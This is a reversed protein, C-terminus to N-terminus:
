EQPEEVLAMEPAYKKLLENRKDEPVLTLLVLRFVVDKLPAHRNVNVVGIVPDDETFKVSNKCIFNSGRTVFNGNFTPRSELQTTGKYMENDVCLLVTFNQLNTQVVM